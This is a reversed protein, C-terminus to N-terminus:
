DKLLSLYKYYAKFYFPNTLFMRFLWLRNRFSKKMWPKLKGIFHIVAIPVKGADDTMTYGLHKIYYTLYDAFMNYEEGLQLSSQCSWDSCYSKIVDQDGVMQGNRSYRDIVEPVLQLLAAEVNLDPQVVMLGSNLFGKWNENGPFSSGASVASFPHSEFLEDINKLVLMDSDLFVIKEFQILGWIQLKDFTYNWHSFTANEKNASIDVSSANLWIVPIGEEQLQKELRKDVHVSLLCYLPYKAGVKRLSRNLLVTGKLYNENSLLTVYARM